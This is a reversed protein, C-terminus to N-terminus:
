CLAQPDVFLHLGLVELQRVHQWCGFTDNASINEEGYEGEM